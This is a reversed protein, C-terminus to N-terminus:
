SHAIRQGVNYPVGCSYHLIEAVRSFSCLRAPNASVFPAAGSGFYDPNAGVRCLRGNATFGLGQHYHDPASTSMALSADAEYPLGNHFHDPPTAGITVRPVGNTVGQM